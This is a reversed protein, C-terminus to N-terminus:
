GSPKGFPLRRDRHVYATAVNGCDEALEHGPRRSKTADKFLPPDCNRNDDIAKTQTLPSTKDPYGIGPLDFRKLIVATPSRSLGHPTCRPPCKKLRGFPVLGFFIQLAPSLVGARTYIVFACFAIQTATMPASPKITALV